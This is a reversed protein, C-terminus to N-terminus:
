KKIMKPFMIEAASNQMYSGHDGDNWLMQHSVKNEDLLKKFYKTGSVIWQFQDNVGCEIILDNLNNFNELRSKIENGIGGFGNEWKSWISDNKITDQGVIDFPYNFYPAKSTDPVFAMGYALTFRVNWDKLNKIYEMYAVHAEKKDYKRLDQILNLVKTKTKDNNFMHCNQLGTSNFLGPSMSYVSGFLDDHKSGINLAGFGGMSHGVLCRHKRDKITRYTSDVYKVVDNVVFDEWNGTVDSNMYFGGRVLNKGSVSVFIAEPVLKNRILSDLIWCMDGDKEIGMGYGKLFYITPFKKLTNYIYVPPVYVGIQNTSDNNLISNTLSVAPIDNTLWLGKNNTQQNCSSAVLALFLIANITLNKM